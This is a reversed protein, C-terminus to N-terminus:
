NVGDNIVRDAYYADRADIPHLSLIGEEPATIDHLLRGLKAPERPIAEWRHLGAFLLFGTLATSAGTLFLRRAYPSERGAARGALWGLGSASALELGPGLYISWYDHVFAGLAFLLIHLVGWCLLLWLYSRRERVGFVAAGLGALALVPITFLDGLHRGMQKWWELAGPASIPRGPIHDPPVHIGTWFFFAEAIDSGLYQQDPRPAVLRAYIFFGLVLAVSGGTLAFAWRRRGRDVALAHISLLGGLYHISWDFGADLVLASGAVLPRREIYAM